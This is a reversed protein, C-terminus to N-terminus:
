FPRVHSLYAARRAPPLRRAKAYPPPHGPTDCPPRFAARPAFSCSGRSSPRHALLPHAAAPHRRPSRLEKGIRLSLALIFAVVDLLESRRPLESNWPARRPESSGRSSIAGVLYKSSGSTAVCIAGAVVRCNSRSSTAPTIVPMRVSFDCPTAAPRLCETPSLDCAARQALRSSADRLHGLKAGERLLGRPAGRTTPTPSQRPLRASDAPGAGSSVDARDRHTPPASQSLGGVSRRKGLPSRTICCGAPDPGPHNACDAAFPKCPAWVDGYVCSELVPEVLGRDSDSSLRWIRWALIPESRTM